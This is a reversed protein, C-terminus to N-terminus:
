NSYFSPDPNDNESGIANKILLSEIRKSTASLSSVQTILSKMEDSSVGVDHSEVDDEAPLSTEKKLKRANYKQYLFIIGGLSTCLISLTVPFVIEDASLRENKDSDDANDDNCSSPGVNAFKYNKITSSVFGSRVLNSLGYSLADMFEDRVPWSM